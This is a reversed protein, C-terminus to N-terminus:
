EKFNRFGLKFGKPQPLLSRDFVREPEAINGITKEGFSFVNQIYYTGKYGAEDLDRIIWAVDAEDMLGTYVTTRAEFTLGKEAAAILMKLSERFPEWWKATGAVAQLKEPPAKYDMAVYDLLGEALLGRLAEPRSGNTDLKIKFGMEKVQRMLAPLGAYLTAEGGSFVVGGLRGMRGKLFELLEAEDKEGKGTVIDPNHCFPCRMNCGAFWAVCAMEGPYDLLTFPTISYLGSM